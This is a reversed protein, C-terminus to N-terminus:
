TPGCNRSKPNCGFIKSGAAVGGGPSGAGNVEAEAVGVETRM